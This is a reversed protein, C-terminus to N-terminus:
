LSDTNSISLCAVNLSAVSRGTAWGQGFALADMEVPGMPNDDFKSDDATNELVKCLHM